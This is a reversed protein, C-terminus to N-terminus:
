TNTGGYLLYVSIVYVPQYLGKNWMKIRNHWDLENIEVKYHLTVIYSLFLFFYPYIGFFILQFQFPFLFIHRSIHIEREREGEKLICTFQINPRWLLCLMNFPGWFAEFWDCLMKFTSIGRKKSKQSNNTESRVWEISAIIIPIIIHVFKAWKYSYCNNLSEM